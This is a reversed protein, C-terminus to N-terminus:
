ANGASLMELVNTHIQWERDTVERAFEVDAPKAIWCSEATYLSLGGNDKILLPGVGAGDAEDLKSLASLEANSLSTQLLTLTIIASKDNSKARWHGGDAGTGRTYSDNERAISVFTGEVYGTIPIGAIVVLIDSPNYTPEAM